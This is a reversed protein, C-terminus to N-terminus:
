RRQSGLDVGLTMGGVQSGLVYASGVMAGAGLISLPVSAVPLGGAGTLGLPEGAEDWCIGLTLTSLTTPRVESIQCTNAEPAVTIYKTTTGTCAAVLFSVALILAIRM